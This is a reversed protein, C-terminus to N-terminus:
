KGSTPSSSEARTNYSYLIFMEYKEVARTARAVRTLIQSLNGHKESVNNLSPVGSKSKWTKMFNSYLVTVRNGLGTLRNNKYVFYKIITNTEDFGFIPGLEVTFKPRLDATIM